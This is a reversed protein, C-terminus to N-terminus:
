TRCTTARHLVTYLDTLIVYLIIDHYFLCSPILCSLVISSMVHSHLVHSVNCFLVLCKISYVVANSIYYAIGFIKIILKEKTEGDSPRLTSRSVSSPLTCMALTITSVNDNSEIISSSWGPEACTELTLLLLALLSLPLGGLGTTGRAFFFLYPLHPPIPTPYPSSPWWHVDFIM